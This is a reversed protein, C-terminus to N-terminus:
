EEENKPPVEGEEYGEDALELLTATDKREKKERIASRRIHVEIEGYDKNKIKKM